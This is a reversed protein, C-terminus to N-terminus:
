LGGFITSLKTIKLLDRVRPKPNALELKCKAHGAALYVSVLAGLGSSDIYEIGTLDLVMRKNGPIAGRITSQFYDATALTIKGTGRISTEDANKAINLELESNPVASAAM